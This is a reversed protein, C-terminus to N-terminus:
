PHFDSPVEVYYSQLARKLAPVLKEWKLIRVEKDFGRPKRIEYSMIRTALEVRFDAGEDSLPSSRMEQNSCRSSISKKSWFPVLNSRIRGRERRREHPTSPETGILLEVIKIVEVSTIYFSNKLPSPSKYRYQQSIDESEEDEDQDDCERTLCALCSVEVVDVGPPAPVVKPHENASGVISFQAVIRNAIQYREVRIIRRKDEKEAQSWQPMCLEELKAGVLELIVPTYYHGPITVTHPPKTASGGSSVGRTVRYREYPEVPEMSTRTAGNLSMISDPSATMQPRTFIEEPVTIPTQIAFHQQQMIGQATSYLPQQFEKGPFNMMGDTQVPALAHMPPFGDLQTYHNLADGQYMLQEQVDPLKNPLSVASFPQESALQDFLLDYDNQVIDIATNSPFILGATTLNPYNSNDGVYTM